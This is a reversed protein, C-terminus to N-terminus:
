KYAKHLNIFFLSLFFYFAVRGTSALYSFIPYGHQATLIHYMSYVSTLTLLISLITLALVVYKPVYENINM